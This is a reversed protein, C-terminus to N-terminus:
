RTAMTRISSDAGAPPTSPPIRPVPPSFFTRRTAPTPRAGKSSSSGPSATANVRRCRNMPQNCRVRTKKKVSRNIAPDAFFVFSRKTQSLPQSPTPSPQKVAGRGHRRRGFLQKLNYYTTARPVNARSTKSEQESCVGLQQPYTKDGVKRKSPIFVLFM